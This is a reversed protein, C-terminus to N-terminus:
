RDSLPLAHLDHLKKVTGGPYEDEVFRRGYQRRRFNKREKINQFLQAFGALTDDDNRM